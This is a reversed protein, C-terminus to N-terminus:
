RSVDKFCFTAGDVPDTYAGAVIMKGAEAMKKAAGLHGARFPDRKELIDSVYDYQLVYYGTAPTVPSASASSAMARVGISRISSSSRSLRKLTFSAVVRAGAVMLEGGRSDRDLDSRMCCQLRNFHTLVVCVSTYVGSTCEVECERKGLM